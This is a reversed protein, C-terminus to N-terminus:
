EEKCQRTNVLDDRIVADYRTPPCLGTCIGGDEGDGTVVCFSCGRGNCEPCEKARKKIPASTWYDATITMIKGPLDVITLNRATLERDICQYLTKPVQLDKEIGPVGVEEANLFIAPTKFKEGTVKKYYNVQGNKDKYYRVRVTISDEEIDPNPLRIRDLQSSDKIYKNLIKVLVDLQKESIRHTREYWQLVSMVFSNTPFLLKCRNLIDINDQKTQLESSKHGRVNESMFRKLRYYDDMLKKDEEQWMKIKEPNNKEFNKVKALTEKDLFEDFSYESPPKGTFLASTKVKRGLLNELEQGDSSHEIKITM